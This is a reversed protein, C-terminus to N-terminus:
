DEPVPQLHPTYSDGGHDTWGPDGRMRSDFQDLNNLNDYSGVHLLSLFGEFDVEEADAYGAEVLADEVAYEVESAPLKNALLEVFDNVTLKGTKRLDIGSFARKACELWQERYTQQFARWDLQSAVFASKDVKGSQKIDMQDMLVAMESPDLQYGLRQLGAALQETTVGEAERTFHLKRMVDRLELLTIVNGDSSTVQHSNADISGGDHEKLPESKDSGLVEAQEGFQVRQSSPSGRIDAKAASSPGSVPQQSSRVSPAAQASHQQEDASFPSQLAASINTAQPTRKVTRTQQQQQQPQQPQQAQQPQSQDPGSTSPELLNQSSYERLASHEPPKVAGGQSELFQRYASQGRRGIEGHGTGAVPAEGASAPIALQPVEKAGDGSAGGEQQRSSDGGKGNVAEEASGWQADAQAFPSKGAAAAPPGKGDPYVAEAWKPTGVEDESDEGSISSTSKKPSDGDLEMDAADSWARPSPHEDKSLRRLLRQYEAGGHASTDLALRAAKRTEEREHEEGRCVTRLYDAKGLVPGSRIASAAARIIRWYNGGGHVSAGKRMASETPTQPSGQVTRWYELGGHASGSKRDLDPRWYELGGHASGSKRDLNPRVPVQDADRPGEEPIAAAASETALLDASSRKRIGSLLGARLSPIQALKAPSAATEPSGSGTAKLYALMGHGSGHGSGDPSSPAPPPMMKILEQAILEFISRKLVNGQAYRQVRQVVTQSLPKGTGRDAVSGQLWPHKLAETATPRQQHDRNLLLKVFDKAQDSIDIWSSGKFAIEDTLISKWVKSLAPSDRNRHDDFPLYGSLLQYAMVGAAWVDSAPYVQSGLMEPAMFWPTGELGLDTRPLQKPDFFVAMGFDIAKLPARDDDNLLMFNGPKVDRHLIRHSHCQALTRLVARMFSAVTKESYHRRGIRHWLEGGRCYEMVIHINEDDEYAKKFHAVNLTGRLRKLVAIERKINDLHVAQKQASLNPINLRKAISKCAYEKGTSKDTVVRVAGFGGKGLEKGWEYRSELDRSFGCDVSEYDKAHQVDWVDVRPM